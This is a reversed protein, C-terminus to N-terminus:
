ASSDDKAETGVKVVTLVADYIGLTWAHSFNGGWCTAAMACISDSRCADLPLILQLMENNMSTWPEKGNTQLAM